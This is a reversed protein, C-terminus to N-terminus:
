PISISVAVENSYASPNGAADFARVRYRYIGGQEVSGDSYQTTAGDTSFLWSFPTICEQNFPNRFCREIEYRVVGVNDTSATWILFVSNLGPDAKLDSPTPAQIDNFTVTVTADATITVSCTPPEGACGGFEAVTSGTDATATLAVPTGSAFATSCTTETPGCDIGGPNSTVAGRGHGGKTVTLTFMQINFIATVAKPGDMTVRCTRETGTCAGEWRVFTSNASPAATLTVVTGIPFPAECTTGCNIGAPDSTVSGAGTGTRTVTLPVTLATFTATAIKARDMTVTCSNRDTTDCGSWSTFTSNDSQRATLTIRTGINFTASCTSTPGCNIGAPDSTVTGSGNGSKNVTLRFTQLNFTATVSKADDMTVACTRTGTCAGSWGSFIFNASPTATLTVVTDINFSASCTTGCNIGDPSSTVTGNGSKTVTLTPNARTDASAPPDSYPGHKGVLDLARVRYTYTTGPLLGTDDYSLNTSPPVTKIQVFNVCGSGQCREILYERIGIGDRDNSAGWEIHIANRGGRAKLDTPATPPTDSCPSPALSNGEFDVSDIPGAIDVGGVPESFRTPPNNDWLNKKAPIPTTRREVLLDAGTTCSPPQTSNNRSSLINGGASGTAGGGLDPNSTAAVSIGTQNGTIINGEIKPTATGEIILATGGIKSFTNGKITPNGGVIRLSTTFLNDSLTPTGQALRIPGNGQLVISSLRANDAGTIEATDGLDTFDLFTKLKEEGQIAPNKGQIAIDRKMQLPVPEGAGSPGTFRYIGPNIILTDGTQARSLGKTLTKCPSTENGCDDSDNGTPDVFLGPSIRITATNSFITPEAVSAAKITVSNPDPSTAPAKYTGTPPQAPDTPNNPTITGLTENGGVVDNVSWTLRTDSLGTVTATFIQERGAIVSTDTPSIRISPPIFPVVKITVSATADASVDTTAEGKFLLAGGADLLRATFIRAQGVPVDLTLIAEQGPQIDASGRALERGGSDTVQIEVKAVANPSPAFAKQSPLPSALTTGVAQNKAHSAPLELTIGVPTTGGGSPAGGGSSGCAALFLFIMPSSLALSRKFFGSLFRNLM